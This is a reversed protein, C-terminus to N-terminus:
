VAAARMPERASAPTLKKELEELSLVWGLVWVLATGVLLAVLDFIVLEVVEQLSRKMRATYCREQACGLYM